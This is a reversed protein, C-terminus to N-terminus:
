GEPVTQREIRFSSSAQFGAIVILCIRRPIWSRSFSGFGSDGACASAYLRKLFSRGDYSRRTFCTTRSFGDRYDHTETQSKSNCGAPNQRYHRFQPINNPARTTKTKSYPSHPNKKQHIQSCSNHIIILCSTDM